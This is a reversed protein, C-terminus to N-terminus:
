RNRKDKKGSEKKHEKKIAKKNVNYFNHYQKVVYDSEKKKFSRNLPFFANYTAKRHTIHHNEKIKTHLAM